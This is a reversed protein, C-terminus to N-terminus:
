SLILHAVRTVDSMKAETLWRSYFPTLVLPRARREGADETWDSDSHEPNLHADPLQQQGVDEEEETERESERGRGELRDLFASNVRDFYLSDFFHNVYFQVKYSWMSAPEAAPLSRSTNSLKKFEIGM